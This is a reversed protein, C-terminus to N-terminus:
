PLPLEDLYTWNMVNKESNHAWRWIGCVFICYDIRITKKGNINIILLCDKTLFQEVLSTPLEKSADRWNLKSSENTQSPTDNKFMLFLDVESEIYKFLSIPLRINEDYILVHPLRRHTNFNDLAGKFRLGDNRIFTFEVGCMDFLQGDEFDSLSYKIVM